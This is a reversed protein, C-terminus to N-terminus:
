FHADVVDRFGWNIRGGKWGVEVKNLETAGYEQDLELRRSGAGTM